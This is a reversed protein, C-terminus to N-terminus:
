NVRTSMYDAMAQEAQERRDYCPGSDYIVVHANQDIVQFGFSFFVEYVSAMWHGTRQISAM